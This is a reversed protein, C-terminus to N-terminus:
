GGPGAPQSPGPSSSATRPPVAREVPRGFRATAPHAFRALAGPGGPVARLENHAM